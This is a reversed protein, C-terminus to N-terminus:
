AKGDGAKGKALEYIGSCYKCEDCSTERCADSFTIFHEIFGLKDLKECSINTVERPEPTSGLHSITPWLDCLNGTFHQEMYTHLIPLAVEIPHTRYAIKFNSIGTYEKYISMWQPLILGSKIWEEPHAMRVENCNRFPFFQFLEESRQSDHSSSNYCDRRYPCRFLCAENSLLSLEIDPIKSMSKLIGFDRNVSTSICVASAGLAKWRVVDEPTAVECITSVEIMDTPFMSRLLGVLLSSTVTWQDVGINHLEQCDKKLKYEWVGKFDQLSGLCSTNLTYRTHIGALRTKDIYKDLVSWEMYPLRDSARATPTLKSISGFLSTVQAADRFEKNWEIVTDLYDNNFLNGANLEVAVM